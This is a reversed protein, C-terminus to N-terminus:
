LKTLQHYDSWKALLQKQTKGLDSQRCDSTVRAIFTHHRNSVLNWLLDLVLAKTSTFLMHIQCFAHGPFNAPLGHPTKSVYLLSELCMCASVLTADEMLQLNNSICFHLPRKCVIYSDGCCSQSAKTNKFYFEYNNSSHCCSATWCPARM